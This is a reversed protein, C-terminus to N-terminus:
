KPMCTKVAALLYFLHTVDDIRRGMKASSDPIKQGSLVLWAIKWRILRRALSSEEREEKQTQQRGCPNQM